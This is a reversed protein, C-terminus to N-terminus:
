PYLLLSMNQRHLVHTRVELAFHVCVSSSSRASVPVQTTSLTLNATCFSIPYDIDMLYLLIMQGFVVGFCSLASMEHVVNIREQFQFGFIATIAAPNSAGLVLITTYFREPLAFAYSQIPLTDPKVGRFPTQGFEAEVQHPSIQRLPVEPSYILYDGFGFFEITKQGRGADLYRVENKVAVVYDPERPLAPCLFVHWTLTKGILDYASVESCPRPNM